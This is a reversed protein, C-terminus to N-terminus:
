YDTAEFTGFSAFDLPRANDEMRCSAGFAPLGFRYKFLAGGFRAGPSLPCGCGALVTKPLAMQAGWYWGQEDQGAFRGAELPTELVAERGGFLAPPPTKELVELTADEPTLTVLAFQQGEGGLAFSISSDPAPDREFASLGLQLVGNQVYLRAMTYIRATDRAPLSGDHCFYRTKLAPLTDLELPIDSITVPFVM